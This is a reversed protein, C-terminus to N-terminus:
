LLQKHESPECSRLRDTTAVDVSGTVVGFTESPCTEVCEGSDGDLYTPYITCGDTFLTSNIIHLVHLCETSQNRGCFAEYTFHKPIDTYYNQYVFYEGSTICLINKSKRPLIPQICDLEFMCQM